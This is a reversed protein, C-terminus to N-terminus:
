ASSASCTCNKTPSPTRCVLVTHQLGRGRGQVEVALDRVAVKRALDPGVVQKGRRHKHLEHAHQVTGLRAVKVKRLERQIQGVRLAEVGGGPVQERQIGHADADAVRSVLLTCSNKGHM